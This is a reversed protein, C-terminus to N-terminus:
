SAQRQAHSRQAVARPAEIRDWSTQPDWTSPTADAVFRFPSTM